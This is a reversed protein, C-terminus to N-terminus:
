SPNNDCSTVYTWAYRTTRSRVEVSQWEECVTTLTWTEQKDSHDSLNPLRYLQLWTRTEFHGGASKAVFSCGSTVDYMGHMSESAHLQDIIQDDTYPSPCCWLPQWPCSSITTKDDSESASTYNFLLKSKPPWKLGTLGKFTGFEWNRWSKIRWIECNGTVAMSKLNM